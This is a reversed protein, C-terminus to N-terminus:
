LHGANWVVGAYLARPQPGAIPAIVGADLALWPRLLLTPGTLAAVIPGAGAPGSTRPYGYVETAWGLSGGLDAALSVTWLSASRPALTGPGSRLTYGGNVDMSIPGFRHSSILVLALDTTGTGLGSATPASPLKLTM